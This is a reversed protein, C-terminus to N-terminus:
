LLYRDKEDEGSPFMFLDPLKFSKELTFSLTTLLGSIVPIRFVRNLPEYGEAKARITYEFLTEVDTKEAPIPVPWFSFTGETQSVLHLPNQWNADKMVALAGNYFLEVNIGSIPSFNVGDFIRGTIAPIFYAPKHKFSIEQEPSQTHGFNPRQNHHVRMIGEHILSAIEASFQPSEITEQHIRAAGRNSVIYYPTTRNLVYCATDMRCQHCTCIKEANGKSEISEYIEDVRPIVIDEITNHLEM